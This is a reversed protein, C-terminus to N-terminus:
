RDQGFDWLDVVELDVAVPQLGVQGSLATAIRSRVEALLREAPGTRYRLSLSMAVRVLGPRDAVPYVRCSRAEVGAIADAAYRLVAAVAQESIDAPGMETGAETPLPLMPGHRLEAHVAQMIRDLLAPPPGATDLVLAQTAQALQSLSRRATACHECSTDHPDVRGADLDDYLDEVLRGCPLPHGGIRSNLAM